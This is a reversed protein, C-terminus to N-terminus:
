IYNNHSFVQVVSVIGFGRESLSDGTDFTEEITQRVNILSCLHDISGEKAVIIVINCLKSILKFLRSILCLLPSCNLVDGTEVLIGESVYVPLGM